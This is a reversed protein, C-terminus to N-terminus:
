TISLENGAPNETGYIMPIVEQVGGSGKEILIVGFMSEVLTGKIKKISKSKPDEPDLHIRHEFLKWRDCLRSLNENTELSQRAKHLEKPSIGQKWIKKLVASKIATDGIWALSKAIEPSAYLNKLVESEAGEVRHFHVNIENFTNKLSPQIMAMVILNKNGQSIEKLAQPLDMEDVNSIQDLIRELNRIWRNVKNRDQQQIESHLIM